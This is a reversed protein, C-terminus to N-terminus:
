PSTQPSATATGSWFNGVTGTAINGKPARVNTNLLNALTQLVNRGQGVQCGALTVRGLGGPCFKGNLRSLEDRNGNPNNPNLSRGSIEDNGVEMNGPTGHGEIVLEGICDCPGLSALIEDVMEKVTEVPFREGAPDLWSILRTLEDAGDFGDPNSIIDFNKPYYPPPCNEATDLPGFPSIRDNYPNNHPDLLSSRNILASARDYGLDKVLEDLNPEGTDPPLQKLDEAIQLVYPPPNPIRAILDLFVGVLNNGSIWDGAGQATCMQPDNNLLAMLDEPTLGVTAAVASFKLEFSSFQEMVTQCDATPDNLTNSVYSLMEAILEELQPQIEVPAISILLPAEETLERQINQLYTYTSDCILGDPENTIEDTSPTPMPIPEIPSVLPSDTQSLTNLQDLLQQFQGLVQDLLDKLITVQEMLQDRTLEQPDIEVYEATAETTDPADQARTNTIISMSFAVGILLVALINLKSFKM